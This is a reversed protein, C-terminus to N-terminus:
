QIQHPFQAFIPLTHPFTVNIQVTGPVYMRYCVVPVIYRLLGKMCTPVQITMMSVIAIAIIIRNLRCILIKKEKSFEGEIRDKKNSKICM